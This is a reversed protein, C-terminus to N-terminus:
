RDDVAGDPHDVEGMTLENHESGIRGPRQPGVEPNRQQWPQHEDEKADAGEPPEDLADDQMPEILTREVRDQRGPPDAHHELLEDPEDRATVQAVDLHRGGQGAADVDEPHVDRGIPDEDKM